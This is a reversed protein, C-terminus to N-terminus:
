DSIPVSRLMDIFARLPPPVQRRGPYYLYYPPLPQCWERLVQVLDGRVVHAAVFPEHLFALGVGDLAATLMLGSEDVVLPGSVEIEFAEGNRAFEWAYRGGQPFHREICAHHHLDQPEQPTGHRALYAPSGVVAFHRPPGVPVAVVGQALRHGLRIGADFGAAVIDVLGDHSVVELRIDPYATLFRGLLPRILLEAVPRPVNLRLRGAPRSRAAGIEAVATGLDGLASEAAARLREGAETLRISRNTRHFLRAGVAEELGRITHSIASPEVRREAAAKRFGGLRAVALFTELAGLPPLGQTSDNRMM